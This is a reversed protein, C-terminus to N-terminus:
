EYERIYHSGRGLYDRLPSLADRPMLRSFLGRVLSMPFVVLQSASCM